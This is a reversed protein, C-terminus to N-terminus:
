KAEEKDKEALEALTKEIEEQTIVEEDFEVGDPTINDELTADLGEKEMAEQYKILDDNFLERKEKVILIVNVKEDAIKREETYLFGKKKLQGLAGKVREQKIGTDEAVDALTVDSTGFQYSALQNFVSDLITAQLETLEGKDILVKIKAQSVEIEKPTSKSAKYKKGQEVRAIFNNYRKESMEDGNVFYVGEYEAMVKKVAEEPTMGDEIKFKVATETAKRRNNWKFNSQKETMKLM